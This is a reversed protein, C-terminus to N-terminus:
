LATARRRECIQAYEVSMRQRLHPWQKDWFAPVRIRWAPIADALHLGYREANKRAADEESYEAVRRIAALVARQRERESVNKRGEIEDIRRELYARAAAIALAFQKGGIEDQKSPLAHLNANRSQLVHVPHMVRISTTSGPLRVEVAHAQIEARDLGVVQHLLDVNYLGDDDAPAIASGVLATISEPPQVIARGGIARAFSALPKSNAADCTFFDVDRSIAPGIDDPEPIDYYGIWFALAQGGILVVDAPASELVRRLMDPPMFTERGGSM